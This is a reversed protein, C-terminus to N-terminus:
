TTEAAVRATHEISRAEELMDRTGRTVKTAWALATIYDRKKLARQALWLQARSPWENADGEERESDIKDAQEACATFYKNALEYDRVRDYLTGLRYGYYVDGNSIDFAQQFANLAEHDQFLLEYCNGLADWLRVDGPRLALARQFYYKGYYHMGLVEYAQGLGFWPRFDYSAISIAARYSEIAAQPNGLEIFEHGMLTWAALYNRNMVLARKYYVVAKEHAEDLSYYNAVICCSETRYKCTAEVHQALYALKAKQETVYLLNSYADLDDLRYPDEKIVREFLETALTYQGEGNYIRALLTLLSSLKPFFKFLKQQLVRASHAPDMEENAHCLFLALMVNHGNSLSKFKQSLTTIVEETDILRTLCSKLELWASWNYPYETVSEMLIERARDPQGKARYIIGRLYKTFADQESVVLEAMIEELYPNVPGTSTKLGLLNNNNNNIGSSNDEDTNLLANTCTSADEKREEGAHYRAFLRLFLTPLDNCGEGVINWARLYERNDFYSKAQMGKLPLPALPLSEWTVDLGAAADAAWRAAILLGRNSLEWYARELLPGLEVRAALSIDLEMQPQLCDYDAIMCKIIIITM